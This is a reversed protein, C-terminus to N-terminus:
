KSTILNEARANNNLTGLAALAQIRVEPHKPDNLANTLTTWAEATNEAVTRHLRDTPVVETDTDDPAAPKQDARTAPNQTWSPTAVGLSLVTIFVATLISLRLSVQVHM